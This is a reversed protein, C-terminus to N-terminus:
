IEVWTMLSCPQGDRFRDNASRGMLPARQVTQCNAQGDADVPTLARDRGPREPDRDVGLPGM